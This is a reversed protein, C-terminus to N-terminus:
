TWIINSFEIIDLKSNPEVRNFSNQGRRMSFSSIFTHRCQPNTCQCFVRVNFGNDLDTAYLYQPLIQVKCNPCKISKNEIYTISDKMQVKVVDM